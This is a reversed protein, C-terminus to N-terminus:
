LSVCLLPLCKFVGSLFLAYTMLLCNMFCLFFCFYIKRFVYHYLFRLNLTLSVNYKGMNRTVLSAIM